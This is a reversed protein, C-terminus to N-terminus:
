FLGLFKGSGKDESEAEPGPNGAPAASMPATDRELYIVPSPRDGGVAGIEGPKKRVKPDMMTILRWGDAYLDRLTPHYNARNIECRLKTGTTPLYYYVPNDPIATDVVCAAIEKAQVQGACCAAIAISLIATHMRTPMSKERNNTKTNALIMTYFRNKTL